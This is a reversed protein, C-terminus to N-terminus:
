KFYEEMNSPIFPFIIQHRHLIMDIAKVSRESTMFCQVVSLKEKSYLQTM